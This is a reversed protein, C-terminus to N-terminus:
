TEVFDFINKKIKLKLKKDKEVRDKRLTSSEKNQSSHKL